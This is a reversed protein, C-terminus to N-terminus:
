RGKSREREIRFRRQLIRYVQKAMEEVNPSSSSENGVAEGSDGSEGTGEEIRQVTMPTETEQPPTESVAPMQTGNRQIVTDQPMGLADLLGADVSSSSSPSSQSPTPAEARQITKEVPTRQAMSSTTHHARGIPPMLVTFSQQQQPPTDQKPKAIGVDLLAQGLDLAQYPLGSTDNDDRQLGDVGSDTSESDAQPFRQVILSESKSVTMRRPQSHDTVTPQEINETRRDSKDSQQYSPPYLDETGTEVSDFDRQPITALNEFSPEDIDTLSSTEEWEDDVSRQMSSAPMDARIDGSYSAPPLLDGTDTEIPDFNRRIPPSKRAQQRNGSDVEPQHIEPRSPSSLEEASTEIPTFSRQIPPSSVSKSERNGSVMDTETYADNDGSFEYSTADNQSADGHPVDYRSPPALDEGSVKPPEFSRQIPPNAVPDSGSDIVTETYVEDDNDSFDSFEDPEVDAQSVGDHLPPVLDEDSVELPEFSRQVPPHSADNDLFAQPQEETHSVDNRRSLSLDEHSTESRQVRPHNTPPTAANRGSDVVTETYVDNDDDSFTEPEGDDHAVDFRRPPLLDEDSPEIPDFQRQITESHSDPESQLAELPMDVLTPHDDDSQRQVPLNPTLTASNMSPTSAGIVDDSYSGPMADPLDDEALWDADDGSISLQADGSDDSDTADSQRSEPVGDSFNVYEVFSRVRNSRPPPMEPLPEIDSDISPTPAPSRQIRDPEYRVNDPRKQIRASPPPAPQPESAKREAIRERLSKKPSQVRGLAKHMDFIAQLDKPMRSQSEPAAPALLTDFAPPQESSQVDPASNDSSFSTPLKSVVMRRVHDSSQRLVRLGIIGIPRRSLLRPMKRRIIM